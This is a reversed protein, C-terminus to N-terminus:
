RLGACTLAIGRPAPFAGRRAHSQRLPRLARLMIQASAGRSLKVRCLEALLGIAKGHSLGYHKNLRTALAQAHSGIQSKAAGLAESTQLAHRGRVRRKCCSCRGIAVNSAHIL